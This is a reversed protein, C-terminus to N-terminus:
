FTLLSLLKIIFLTLVKHVSKYNLYLEIGLVFQSVEEGVHARANWIRAYQLCQNKELRPVIESLRKRAKFLAYNGLKFM